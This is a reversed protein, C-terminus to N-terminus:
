CRHSQMDEVSRLEIETGGGGGTQLSTLQGEGQQGLVVIIQKM